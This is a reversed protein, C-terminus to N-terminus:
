NHDSTLLLSRDSPSIMNWSPSLKKRKYLSYYHSLVLLSRKEIEKLKKRDKTM